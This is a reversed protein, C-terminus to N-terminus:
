GNVCFFLPLPRASGCSANRPPVTEMFIWVSIFNVGLNQSADSEPEQCSQGLFIGETLSPQASVLPPPEGAEASWGSAPSLVLWAWRPLELTVGSPQTAVVAAAM